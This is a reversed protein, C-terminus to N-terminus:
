LLEVSKRTSKYHSM